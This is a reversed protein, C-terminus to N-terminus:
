QPIPGLDRLDLSRGHDALLTRVPGAHVYLYIACLTRFQYKTNTSTYDPYPICLHEAACADRAGELSARSCRRRDPIWRASLVKERLRSDRMLVLSLSRGTRQDNRRRSDDGAGALIM